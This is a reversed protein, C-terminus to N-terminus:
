QTKPHSVSFSKLYYSIFGILIFSFIILCSLPFIVSPFLLICDRERVCVCVCVSGRSNAELADSLFFLVYIYVFVVFIVFILNGASLVPAQVCRGTAGRTANVRFVGRDCSLCSALLLCLPIERSGVNGM